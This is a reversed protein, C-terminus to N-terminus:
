LWSGVLIFASWYYPHATRPNQLLAIQASRLAEAKTKGKGLAEYFETMLTATSNADVQWLSAVTARSGAQATIGAIGIPSRRDGIATQCASLVLLEIPQDQDTRRRVVQYIQDINIPQDWALLFTESPNSSFQGHTTLHVIPFNNLQLKQQFNRVTFRDNLLVTADTANQLNAVEVDVAPLPKLDRPVKPDKFSPSMESLGAILATLRGAPLKKPQRLGVELTAISYHQVLYNQGDHLLNMPITQLLPDVSFAITGESPLYGNKKAPAILSQYLLQASPLFVSEDVEVFNNQLNDVLNQAQDKVGEVPATYYHLQNSKDQVIIGVQEGLDLIHFITVQQSTMEGFSVFDLRGCRLFNELEVQQLRQNVRIAQWLNKSQPNKLVIKLYERYIPEVEDQIAFQLSSGASWSDTQVQNLAAVATAYAQEARDVFGRAPLSTGDADVYLQGLARYWRYELEAARVSQALAAARKFQTIARETQGQDRSLNALMGFTASQARLNQLSRAVRLAQDTQNIASEAQGMRRLSEAFNLRAYVSQIPPLSAISDPNIQQILKPVETAIISNIPTSRLQKAKLEVLFELRNLQAFLRIRTNPATQEVQHYSELAQLATKESDSSLQLRDEPQSTRLARDRKQKYIARDVNALSLLTASTDEQSQRVRELTQTLVVRAADTRGLARLVDGLSILAAITADTRPLAAVRDELQSIDLVSRRVQCLDEPLASVGTRTSSLADVLSHCARPFLGLAQLALSQNARSGLIGDRNEATRYGSEADQWLKLARAPNGQDLQEFGQQNLDAPNISQSRAIGASFALSLGLAFILALRVFKKM